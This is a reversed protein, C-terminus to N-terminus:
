QKIFQKSLTREATEIRILYIGAKYQQLNIRLNTREKAEIVEVVQGLANFVTVKNIGEGVVYLVDNAPNPYVEVTGGNEGVGEIIAFRATFHHNDDVVTVMTPNASILNGNKFWGVFAYNDNPIATLTVSEGCPYVGAGIVTGGEVPELDVTVMYTELAFDAVLNCNGTVTFSYDAQTSVVNGNETWSVFRYCTNPLAHVTCSQSHSFTGGGSVSGGESPNASVNVTYSQATFHAVYNTSETVTFSYTPNTSVQTGNKTWNTFEFGANATATLHCTEGYNYGGMGTITGGEEPDATATIVYSQSTFHAVLTRNDTVVFSYDPLSCVQTGNETWNVFNFGPNATAVVTCNDGYHFAGGGTVSGGNAPDASVSVVLNDLQFHAVLTRDANVTFSYSADASVVNGNETWNVFNYGNAATATLTCTQGYNYTGGGSVSGGSSPNASALIAYSQIQFHAVYSAAETVTFSYNANTSVQTGNKTWNVFNYGEAPTASLTCTQGYSYTGAGTVSGGNTPDASVSITYAPNGVQVHVTNSPDSEGGFYNTTVHYDYFGDALNADTYTSGTLNTAVANGDRYLNYTYTGDTLYTKMLWSCNHSENNNDLYVFEKWITGDAVSSYLVADVIDSGSYYCFSAPRTISNDAYFVVWLDKTYDIPIPNTFIIDQWANVSSAYYQQQYVLERPNAEDGKYISVLYTGTKTFYYAVKQVAMGAYDCITTTSFRQAWYFGNGVGGVSRPNDINIGYQLLASEPNMSMWSLNVDKGNVSAQLNAPVPGSFHVDVVSTNSKLSMTGDSRVSKVYYGHEGYPANADTFSSNTVNSVILDGDRYVKYSSANSISNWTISVNRGNVATSVNTPPNISTQNPFIGFIARNVYSYYAGGYLSGIAYYGDWRGAYGWNFHFYDNEDYGDCVFIHGVSNNQSQGRYIVPREVNLDNKLMAVWQDDSYHGDKEKYSMSNNYNFFEILADDIRSTSTGSADPGYDMSVSVGCHYMLTAVAEAEVDSYSKQYVNRMHDWDYITNGFNVAQIGYEPHSSPTYSFSGAGRVPHEWYNMLQAMAVAGCGTKAHGGPGATDAPCLNNFPTGYQWRTRVLPEVHNRTKPELGRGNLLNEWESQIELLTEFHNEKISAMENDYAKFWDFVAEPMPDANIGYETSYGLVPHAADDSAIIVFCRENGFVYFNPFSAKEAFDILHIQPSGEMKANLFSQAARQATQITVNESFSPMVAMLFAVITLSLKKM